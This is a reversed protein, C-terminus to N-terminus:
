QKLLSPIDVIGLAQKTKESLHPLSEYIWGVLEEGEMIEIDNQKALQKNEDSVAATTIM